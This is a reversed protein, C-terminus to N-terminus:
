ISHVFPVDKRGHGDFEVFPRLWLLNTLVYTTAPLSYFRPPHEVRAANKAAPRSKSKRYTLDFGGGLTKTM